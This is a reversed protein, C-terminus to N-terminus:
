RCLAGVACAKRNLGRLWGVLNEQLLPTVAGVRRPFCLFTLLTLQQRISNSDNHLHQLWSWRVKNVGKSKFLNAGIAYCKAPKVRDFLRTVLM